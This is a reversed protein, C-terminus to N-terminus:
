HGLHEHTLRVLLATLSEGNLAFAGLEPSWSLKFSRVLASVWIQRVPANQSVVFRAATPEEFQVNLVGGQIELEFGEADALGLLAHQAAEIAEDAKVRFEQESLAEDAM